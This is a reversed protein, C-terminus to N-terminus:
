IGQNWSARGIYAYYSRRIAFGWVILGVAIVLFIASGLLTVGRPYRTSAIVFPLQVLMLAGFLPLALWARPSRRFFLVLFVVDLVTIASVLWSFQHRFAIDYANQAGSIIVLGAFLNLPNNYGGRQDRDRGVFHESINGM